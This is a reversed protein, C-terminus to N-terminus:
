GILKTPSLFTTTGKAHTKGLGNDVVGKADYILFAGYMYTARRGM